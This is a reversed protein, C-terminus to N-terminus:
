GGRVVRRSALYSIHNLLSIVGLEYLSQIKIPDDDVLKSLMDYLGFRKQFNILQV